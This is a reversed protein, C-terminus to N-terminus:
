PTFNPFMKQATQQLSNTFAEIAQGAAALATKRMFPNPPVFGLVKLGPKHGKLVHGFEIWLAVNGNKGFGVHASGGRFQSDLEVQVMVSERLEGRDLLGGTDEAKIPTNRELVDAIVNGGASLAKVFGEAVLARSGQRLMLAVETDGTVTITV